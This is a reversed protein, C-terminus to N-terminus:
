GMMSAVEDAFNDERKQLGEGKELRCFECIKIQVGLEKAVGDVYKAVNLDPDKVFAQDVLCNEKYFKGIKGNVIKEAIAAPKGENIVQETLIKKEHELVDAPVSKSDLYLPNAAAIQMAVDKAMTKFADTAAVADDVDFRVMVGIRGNGHIYTALNGEYRVFRRIKINEGITLIKDRLLTAIDATEGAPVKTLLDEADAPNQEAVTKACLTVFDLFTQNKAVFDTEANVEIIVGIKKAEDVYSVVAGEAAIRGSKKAAAALGKERLFDIAKDMDGDTATLAKKCDMMGCGTKERLNKVDAATFAM